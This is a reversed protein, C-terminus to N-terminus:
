KYFVELLTLGQAPATIGAFKRNKNEITTKINNATRKGKGAEILTGAIIRVMNYLFGDGTVDIWIENDDVKYIALKYIERVTSTVSSGAAVFAAFDHKGIIMKAAKKMLEIDLNKHVKYVFNRKFVSNFNDNLIRYRYTKARTHHRSHFNVPVEEAKKCIIDAPLETNLAIPIKAIPIPIDLLFNAVQGLAHVGADTRGAGTIQVKKKNLKSLAEEVVQQITHPTNKQIQWGSYDTGDYELTIKINRM